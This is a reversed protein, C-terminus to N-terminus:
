HETRKSRTPLQPQEGTWKYLEESAGRKVKHKIGLVQGNPGITLSIGLEFLRVSNMTYNEGRNEYDEPDWKDDPHRAM